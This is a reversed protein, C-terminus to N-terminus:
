PAVVARYFRQPLSVSNFEIFNFPAPNTQLSHWNSGSLNTSAQVIYNSGSSGSVTFQFHGGSLAPNSLTAAVPPPNSAAITTGIVTVMDFRITGSTGYTGAAGVYNTNGTNAASSEFEAVIRFAFNPNNNVGVFGSLINTKSEFVTATNIATATPFDFFTTGNTTYQLRVYKSGTNSVREDWSVVVNQKGVTSVNFQAGAAKNNATAAPYSTTNWASNDSGSSAPDGTSGTAFTATTGGILAATGSGLSPLTV